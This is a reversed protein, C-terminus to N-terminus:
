GALQYVTTLDHGDALIQQIDEDARQALGVELKAGIAAAEFADLAMPHIGDAVVDRDHQDIFRSDFVLARGRHAGHRLQGPAGAHGDDPEARKAVAYQSRRSQGEQALRAGIQPHRNDDLRPEVVVAVRLDPRAERLLALAPTTLVCDGLSRLRIVAVRAGWPLQPMTSM